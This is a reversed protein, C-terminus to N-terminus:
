FDIKESILIVVGPITQNSNGNVIKKKKKKIEVQKHRQIQLSDTSM